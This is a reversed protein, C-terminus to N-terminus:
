RIEKGTEKGTEKRGRGAPKLVDEMRPEPLNFRKARAVLKELEAQLADDAPTAAPAYGGNGDADADNTKPKKM